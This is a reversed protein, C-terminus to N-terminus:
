SLLANVPTVSVMVRTKVAVITKKKEISVNHM